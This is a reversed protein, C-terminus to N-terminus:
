ITDSECLLIKGHLVAMPINSTINIKESHIVISHFLKQHKHYVDKIADEKIFRILLSKLFWFYRSELGLFLLVKAINCKMERGDIEFSLIFLKVGIRWQSVSIFNCIALVTNWLFPLSIMKYFNWMSLVNMISYFISVFLECPASYWLFCSSLVTGPTIHIYWTIM